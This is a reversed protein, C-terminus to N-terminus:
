KQEVLKKRVDNLCRGLLNEGRWKSPTYIDPHNMNLGIGWLTDRPSAEVFRVSKCNHYQQVIYNKLKRNQSFKAFLGVMMISYRVNDWIKVDFDKVSRGYIKQTMPNSTTLINRAMNEDKFLPPLWNSKKFIRM